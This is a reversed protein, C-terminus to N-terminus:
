LEQTLANDSQLLTTVSISSASRDTYAAVLYGDSHGERAPAALLLQRDFLEEWRESTNGRAQLALTRRDFQWYVGPASVVLQANLTSDLAASFSPAAAAPLVLPGILPSTAAAEGRRVDFDILQLLYCACQQGRPCAASCDLSAAAQRQARHRHQPQSVASAM